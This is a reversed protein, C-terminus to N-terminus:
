QHRLRAADRQCDRSPEEPPTLTPPPLAPTGGLSNIWDAMVQVANTDILNRALPPMQITPNVMNMRDYISSRWVDNPRSLIWTTTASPQRQGGPHQHHKSQGSAHRLPRRLDARDRRTPPVPRLQRGFLLARAARLLRRYQDARLTARHQHDASRQHRSLSLGTRNLARLQNDTVGNSYTLNGNLQRANVGLVYNARGHPVAFLRQPQSLVVIPTYVGGPTQIPSPETLSTTLLDADSYDSRWKYTVGYVAGNTDRV